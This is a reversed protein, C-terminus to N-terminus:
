QSLEKDLRKQVRYRYIQYELDVGSRMNIEM